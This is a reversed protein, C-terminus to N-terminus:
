RNRPHASFFDIITQQVQAVVDEPAKGRYKLFRRVDQSKVQECMVVSSRSLVGDIPEMRVHYRLGRDRTTLPCAIHLDNETINFADNSVVLAPRVGAQERGVQPSFDVYWIDGVEPVRLRPV